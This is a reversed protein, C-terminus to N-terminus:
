MRVSPQPNFPAFCDPSIRLDLVFPRESNLMEGIADEIQSDSSVTVGDAGFVGALEAFDPNTHLTGYVRGMKQVKQRFYLVRYSNDNVVVVKVPISERVATELDQVTMMFEGDGVVAIATYGLLAATMAAPFGFGMAGHNTAALYSRPRRAKVYAQPYLVHM